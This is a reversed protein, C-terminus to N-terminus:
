GSFTLTDPVPRTVELGPPILQETAEHLAFKALPVGTVRVALPENVPQPPSQVPWPVFGTQVTM